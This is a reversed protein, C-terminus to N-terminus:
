DRIQRLDQKHRHLPEGDFAHKKCQADMQYTHSSKLSATLKIQSTVKEVVLKNAFGQLYEILCVVTFHNTKAQSQVQPGHLWSPAANPFRALL